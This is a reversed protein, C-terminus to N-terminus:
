PNPNEKQEAGSKLGDRIHLEYVNTWYPVLSAALYFFPDISLERGWCDIKSKMLAENYTAIDENEENIFLACIRLAPDDKDELNKIGEQIKYLTISMNFYDHKNYSEISKALNKFIDEFNASFGFEISIKQLERYRAFSLSENVYFKRGGCEFYKLTAFDIKRLEKM